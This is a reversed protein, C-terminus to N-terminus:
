WGFLHCYYFLATATDKFILLSFSLISITGSPRVFISVQSVRIKFFTGKQQLSSFCLFYENSTFFLKRIKFTAPM